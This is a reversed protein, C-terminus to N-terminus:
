LDVEEGPTFYKLRGSNSAVVINGNSLKGLKKVPAHLDFIKSESHVFQKQDDQLLLILLGDISGYEFHNSNSGGGLLLDIRSDGNFDAIVLDNVNMSQAAIPLVHKKWVGNGQNEFWCSRMEYARYLHATRKLEADFMNSFKAKGFNEFSFYQNNFAPMQSCFLDRNTFPGNVGNTYKFLVPEHSGDKDFDNLLLTMPTNETAQFISNLGHNGAVIDLDGDGDLDSTKVVQWWGGLDPLIPAEAKFKGEDCYFISPGTWEGVFILDSWGDENIDSWLADTIRHQVLPFISESAPNLENKDKLVINSKPFETYKGPVINSGVFFDLDGDRDVDQSKVVSTSNRNEGLKKSESFNGKGDNLYYRDQYHIADKRIETGGSAVILDIHNDDNIDVFEANVDESFIEEGWPQNTSSHFQGNNNQLFLKSSQGSSGGIFIDDLGDKDVDAIVLAPGQMSYKQLLLREQKFDNFNKENHIFEIDMVKSFFSKNSIPQDSNSANKKIVISQNAEINTEFQTTGDPWIVQVSKIPDQTIGFCAALAPMSHFGRQSQLTHSQIAQGQNLIIKSGLAQSNNKDGVLKVKLYQYDKQEDVLNRFLSPPQDINNWIMDLDGDNDLDGYAIGRTHIPQDIGWSKSVDEFQRGDINKYIFNPSTYSPAKSPDVKSQVEPNAMDTYQNGVNQKVFDMNTMDRRIGNSVLLDKRGDMDADFFLSGWSWETAHVGAMLGIEQMGKGNANTYLMNRTFQPYGIRQLRDYVDLSFPVLNTKQREHSNPMMEGVFLDEFGDNDIDAADSGMASMPSKTFFSKHSEKFTGNGQNLYLFDRGFFDNAVYLDPWQDNNIDIVCTSLSLNREFLIGANRSVDVYKGSRNEFLRDGLVAHAPPKEYYAFNFAAGVEPLQALYLDLDGDRDFDFFQASSTLGILDLGYDASSEMFMGDGQNIYLLNKGYDTFRKQEDLRIGSKCLYIDLRGDGNIDVFNIGETHAMGEGADKVGSISTIDSFTFDGNNKYLRCNQYGGSFLIDVFGDQDIDGLVVGAGGSLLGTKDREPIGNSGKFTIGSISSPISEFLPPTNTYKTIQEDPRKKDKSCGLSLLPLVLLFGIFVKINSQNM